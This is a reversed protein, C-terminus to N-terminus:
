YMYRESNKWWQKKRDGLASGWYVELMMIFLFVTLTYYQFISVGFLFPTTVTYPKAPYLTQLSSISQALEITLLSSMIAFIGLSIPFFRAKVDRILSSLGLLFGEITLLTTSTGVIVSISFTGAYEIVIFLIIAFFGVSLSFLAAGIERWHKSAKNM